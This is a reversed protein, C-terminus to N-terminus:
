PKEKRKKSAKGQDDNKKYEEGHDTWYDMGYWGTMSGDTRIRAKM